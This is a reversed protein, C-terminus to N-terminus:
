GRLVELEELLTAITAYRAAPDRELCRMLIRELDKPVEPWASRVPLPDKQAKAALIQMLTGQAEFPLRGTFIEYLVVGVAYLDTRQDAERGQLQEPALYYPTGVIEAVKQSSAGREIRQAIGFDMLKLNGTPELILNEPKIDRHIVAQAHAADLGRCLQRALRLGATLPVQGSRKLLQRLTIGRIYEMSIFPVGDLEGFDYTRLVNPHAIKRALKLESKLNDLREADDWVDPKLMKLAVLEGLSEDRAKYVVGMGGAGLQGLITFRGGLRLGANLDSLTTVGTLGSTSGTSGLPPPPRPPAGPSDFQLTDGFADPPPPLEGPIATPVTPRNQSAATRSPLSSLLPLQTATQQAEEELVNRSLENLYIEMDRKERLESLLKDFATALAGVEDTRGVEVRQDLDGEAAARTVEALRRVPGVAWSSIWRSLALALAIALLAVVVLARQIRRYPALQEDLSALSIVGAVPEGDVGLLPTRRALWRRGGLEIEEAEEGLLDPQAGLLGILSASLDEGLTGAVRVPEGSEGDLVEGDLVFVVVEAGSIRHLEAADQDDITRGAALYGYLYGGAGVPVAAAEYLTGGQRWIGNAELEDLATLVLPDESLDMEGSEPNDTRAVLYGEADLVLALEFGLDIQRDGLQDLLSLVDGSELSEVFYAVFAPDDGLTRVTLRLQELSRQQFAAQVSGSRELAQEVAEGAIRGGVVATMALAVGVAVVVVLTTM